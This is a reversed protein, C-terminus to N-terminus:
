GILFRTLWDHLKGYPPRLPNGVGAFRRAFVPKRKSFADFGDKGHYHGMGSAGVGGFPLDDACVHVLTDNICLAGSVTSRSIADLSPQHRSFAYLVLPRPRANVFAIADDLTGYPILPLIPGFIEDQMVALDQPPDILVVPAMRRGPGDAFLRRAEVGRAAAEELYGTLRAHHRDNVIATYDPSAAGGPYFTHAAEFLADATERLKAAPVLLYDPAICTQGANLLKGYMVDRAVRGASADPAAIVPSKGGLELTVPTLNEAAARMVHRGVATSGTFLLHDFPLRSFEEGVSSGGLVVAVHDEEFVSSLMEGILEGTRPTFESLKLMVRNGAALAGALPSFTLFVPYNWPSIIGAVGLPQPDIWARAPQIPWAVPRYERRMWSALHRRAHKLAAASTFVEALATEQRARGGFDADLASGLKSQYRRLVELARQLHARREAASPYPHRLFAARQRELIASLGASAAPNAQKSEFSQSTSAM